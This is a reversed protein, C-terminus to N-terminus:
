AFGRVEKKAIDIYRLVNDAQTRTIMAGVTTSEDFPDGIKMKETREKFRRLFEAFISKQVFVRTGNSCVQLSPVMDRNSFMLITMVSTLYCRVIVSCTM